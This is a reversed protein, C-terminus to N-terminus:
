IAMTYTLGCKFYIEIEHKHKVIIKEVLAKLLDGNFTEINGVMDLMNRMEEMRSVSTNSHENSATMVGRDALLKELNLAITDYSIIYDERTLRGDRSDRNLQLMQNQATEIKSDIKIITQDDKEAVISIINEQLRERFQDRSEILRKLSEVFAQELVAEKIPLEKCEQNKSSQKLLCVWIPTKVDGNWQSHRRYKTGCEGCYLLGSFAYQSSYRGLGSDTVGRVRKRKEIEVRAMEAMESTVIAPHSQMIEFRDVQGENKKRKTLFDVSYTKQLIANGEYKENTLMSLITSRHWKENGQPSKIGDSELRDIIEGYTKGAIFERYIRRVIEAEEPVIVINKDEDKTYGLFCTTNLMIEGREFKKKWTWKLNTSISRSEEEAISSMISLLLDTGASLTDLSEKEFYISIGIEKLQMVYDKCDRANRAFRSISKTIVKDIKGDRCDQIMRQFEKRNKASKGSIGEDAYIGAFEWNPKGQIYESYHSVQLEYSSEQEESDTSVRCYACVRERALRRGGNIENRTRSPIVTVTRQTTM